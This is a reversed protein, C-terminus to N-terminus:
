ILRWTANSVMTDVHPLLADSIELYDLKSRKGVKFDIEIISLHCLLHEEQPVNCFRKGFTGIMPSTMYNFKSNLNYLGSFLHFYGLYKM